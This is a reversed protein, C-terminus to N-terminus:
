PPGGGRGGFDVLSNGLSGGNFMGVDARGANGTGWFLLTDVGSMWAARLCMIGLSTEASDVVDSGNIRGFGGTAVGGADGVDIM